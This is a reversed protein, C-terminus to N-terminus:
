GMDPLETHKPPFFVPKQFTRCAVRPKDLEITSPQKAEPAETEGDLFCHHLTLNSFSMLMQCTLSGYVRDKEGEEFGALDGFLLLLLRFFDIEENERSVKRVKEWIAVEWQKKKETGNRATRTCKSQENDM